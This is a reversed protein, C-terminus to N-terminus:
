IAALLGRRLQRGMEDIWKQEQRAVHFKHVGHQRDHLQDLIERERAAKELAARALTAEKEAQLCKELRERRQKELGTIFQNLQLLEPGTARKGASFQLLAAANLEKETESLQSKARNVRMIAQAHKQAAQEEIRNKLLRVAELSFKWKKM